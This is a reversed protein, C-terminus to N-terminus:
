GCYSSKVSGHCYSSKVSGHCYSSKVSGNEKTDQSDQKTEMFKLFTSKGM